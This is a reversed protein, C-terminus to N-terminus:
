AKGSRLRELAAALAAVDVSQGMQEAAARWGHRFGAEHIRSSRYDAYCRPCKQQGAHGVYALDCVPCTLQVRPTEREFRRGSM